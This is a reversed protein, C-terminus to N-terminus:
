FCKIEDFERLLRRKCFDHSPDSICRKFHKKIINAAITKIDKESLLISPKLSINNWNWPKDLNNEIMEWTMNPNLSLYYYIWKEKIKKFNKWILIKKSIDM